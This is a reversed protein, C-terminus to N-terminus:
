PKRGHAIRPWYADINFDPSHKQVHCQGCMQQKSWAANAVPTKGGSKAHAATAGHCNECQVHQLQATIASDIFGGPKDFGVTHCSLCDPDFTKNVDQLAYFAQAHKSAFWTEHEKSHCGKCAQEGAYPSEGSELSKRLAVRREYDAKVKANYEAYWAAMRPADGVDVPLAIAQHRVSILKGNADLAFDARGLRMGRSGPQLVYTDGVKQPEGYVEYKSQIILIDLAALPVLRKAQDLPLTTALATVAGSKKAEAIRAALAATDSNAISSTSGSMAAQPDAGPDIWAFFALTLGGRGVIKEAAFGGNHWNSAVLPLGSAKLFAEGYALDRWQMGVADYSQAAVGKLIYESKLRDQPMESVLLGGGSIAFLNPNETRLKDIMHAQRKIGGLNGSESCGCPELEGDLNATYILTLSKPPESAFVVYGSLIVAIFSVPLVYFLLSRISPM